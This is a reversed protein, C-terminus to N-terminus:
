ARAAQAALGPRPEPVGWASTGNADPKGIGDPFSSNYQSAGGGVAVVRQRAVRRPDLGGRRALAPQRQDRGGRASEQVRRERVARHASAPGALRGDHQMGAIGGLAPQAPSRTRTPL